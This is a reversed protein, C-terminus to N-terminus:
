TLSGLETPTRKCRRLGKRRWLRVRTRRRSLLRGVGDYTYSSNYTTGPDATDTITEDTIRQDRSRTVASVVTSGSVNWSLGTTSGADNRTIALNSGNGYAVRNM